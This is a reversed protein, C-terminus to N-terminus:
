ANALVYGASINILAYYSGTVPLDLQYSNWVDPILQRVNEGWPEISDILATLM